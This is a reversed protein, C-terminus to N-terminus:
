LAGPRRRPPVHEPQRGPPLGGLPVKIFNTMKFDHGARRHRRRAVLPHRAPTHAPESGQDCMFAEPSGACFCGAYGVPQKQM